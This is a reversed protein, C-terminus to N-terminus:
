SAQSRAIHNPRPAGDSLSVSGERPKEDSWRERLVGAWFAVRLEYELAEDPRATVWRWGASLFARGADRWLSLPVRALEREGTHTATGEPELLHLHHTRCLLARSIGHWYFWRHFYARTLRDASVQHHVVMAPLYMGKVGADRARLHWERQSQNRLTGAVRGLRADFPGVRLCADRRYAVNVGLPWSLGDRGYERPAPGHNQLGLVKGTTAAVPDLWSPPTGAWRPHVPGGVFDCRFQEFGDMARCLWEREPQADDDTAAIFTTDVAAIARNLARYKGLQPECISHLPVPFHRQAARVVNPTDDTCGNDVVLVQWRAPYSLAALCELTQRLIAARNHTVVVVTIDRM